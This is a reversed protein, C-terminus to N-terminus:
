LKNKSIMLNYYTIEEAFESYIYRMFKISPLPKFQILINFKKLDLEVVDNALLWVDFVRLDKESKVHGQMQLIVYIEPSALRHLHGDIETTSLIKKQEDESIKSLLLILSTMDSREYEILKKFLSIRRCNNMTIM